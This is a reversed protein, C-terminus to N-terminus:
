ILAVILKTPFDPVCNMIISLIKENTYIGEFNFNLIDTVLKDINVDIIYINLMFNLLSRERRSSFDPVKDISVDVASIM